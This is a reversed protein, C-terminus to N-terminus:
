PRSRILEEMQDLIAEIGLTSTDIRVYSDDWRLPSLDRESDRRDRELIEAAVADNQDKGGDGGLQRRRRDARVQLDADLFFKYRAGPFVVTGIDRGEVVGGRAAVQRQVHVLHNRVASQAALASARAAVEQTRIERDVAVGDLLLTADDDVFQLAIETTSVLRAIAREDDPDVANRLSKLALARYMAGTDIYPVGLRRALQRAVTSKGVGSPGDITVILSM